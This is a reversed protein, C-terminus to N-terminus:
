GLNTGVSCPQRKAQRSREYVRATTAPDAHMDPLDGFKLEYYTTHPRSSRPVHVARPHRRGGARGEDAAELGVQVGRGHVPQGDQARRVGPGYALLYLPGKHAGLGCGPGRQTRDARAEGQRRAAKSSPARSASSRRTWRVERAYRNALMVLARQTFRKNMSRSYLRGEWVFQLDTSPVETASGQSYVTVIGHETIACGELYGKPHRWVRNMPATIVTTIPVAPTPAVHQDHSALPLAM